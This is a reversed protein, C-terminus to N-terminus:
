GSGPCLDRGTVGPRAISARCSLAERARGWLGRADPPGYNRDFALKEYFIVVWPRHGTQAISRAQAAAISQADPAALFRDSNGYLAVAERAGLYLAMIDRGPPVIQEALQMGERIPQNPLQRVATFTQWVVLASIGAIGSARGWQNKSALFLGSVAIAFWPLIWPVFRVETASHVFLPLIAGLLTVIAFSILMPRLAPRSWGLVSGIALAIVPLAWFIAGPSADMGTFAFRPLANIFQRYTMTALYPHRYYSILGRLMPLHLMAAVVLGALAALLWRPFNERRLILVALGHAPILFIALPITYIALSLSTVYAIAWRGPGTPLMNTAIAGLLLLLTYGRAEVSFAVLWPNLETILAIVLALLPESRRLPWVLALPFLLGATLAPLRLLAERPPVIQGDSGLTYVIKVLISHLVHNNPVYEGARAALVTHWPQAVYQVLTTMEDYWLSQNLHPVRVALGILVLSLGCWIQVSKSSARPM